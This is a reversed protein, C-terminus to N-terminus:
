EELSEIYKEYESLTLLKELESNDKVKLKILWGKVHPDENLTEPVENLKENTAIVEGSIPSYIDSVAKVSEIVGISQHFELLTGIEPLEIYVIDGLQNQAFDSIGITATEGDIKIWEHDKTYYYDSPYM